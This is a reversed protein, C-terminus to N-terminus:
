FVVQLQAIFNDVSSGNEDNYYNATLRTRPDIWFNLGATVRRFYHAAPTDFREFATM